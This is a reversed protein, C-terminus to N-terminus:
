GQNWIRGSHHSEMGLGHDWIFGGRRLNRKDPAKDCSYIVLVIKKKKQFITMLSSSVDISFIGGYSIATHLSLACKSQSQQPHPAWGDHAPGGM